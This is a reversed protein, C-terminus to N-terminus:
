PQYGIQIGLEKATKGNKPAEITLYEKWIEQPGYFTKLQLVFPTNLKELSEIHRRYNGAALVLDSGKVGSNILKTIYQEAKKLGLDGKRRPYAKKIEEFILNKEDEKNKIDINSNINIHVTNGSHTCDPSKIEIKNNVISFGYSELISKAKQKASWSDKVSEYQFQFFNVILICGDFIHINNGYWNIIDNQDVNFGLIFSTLEYDPKWIGAIDCEDCMFMWLVKAKVPLSRFWPNRWKSSDTLRKGM